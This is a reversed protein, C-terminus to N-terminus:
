HDASSRLAPHVEMGAGGQFPHFYMKMAREAQEIQWDERGGDQRLREVFAEIREAPTLRPDPAEGLFKRVWAVYYKANKEPVIRRKLLFEGFEELGMERERLEM